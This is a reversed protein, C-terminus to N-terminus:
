RATAWCCVAVLAIANAVSYLAILVAMGVTRDRCDVYYPTSFTGNCCATGYDDTADRIERTSLMSSIDHDGRVAWLSADICGHAYPVGTALGTVSDVDIGDKGAWVELLSPNKCGCGHCGPFSTLDYVEAFVDVDSLTTDGTYVTKLFEDKDDFREVYLSGSTMNHGPTRSIEYACSESSASLETSSCTTWTGAQDCGQDCIAVCSPTFVCAREAKQRSDYDDIISHSSCESGLITWNHTPITVSYEYKPASFADYQNDVFGVGAFFMVPVLVCVGLWCCGVPIAQFTDEDICDDVCGQTWITACCALLCTLILAAVIYLKWACASMAIWFIVLAVLLGFPLSLAALFLQSCLKDGYTATEALDVPRGTSMSRPVVAEEALAKGGSLFCLLTSLMLFQGSNLVGFTAAAPDDYGESTPEFRGYAM